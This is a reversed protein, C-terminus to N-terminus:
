RPGPFLDKMLFAETEKQDAPLTSIMVERGLRQSSYIVTGSKARTRMHDILRRVIALDVDGLNGADVELLDRWKGNLGPTTGVVSIQATRTGKNLTEFTARVGLQPENLSELNRKLAADRAERGSPEREASAFAANEAAAAANAAEREARRKSVMSMLDQPTANDTPKSPPPPPPQVPVAIQSANPVPSPTAIIRPAPRPPPRKTPPPTEPVPIVKPTPPPSGALRVTLREQHVPQRLLAGADQFEPLEIMLIGVHVLISVVLFAAVRKRRQVVPDADHRFQTGDMFNQSRGFKPLSIM